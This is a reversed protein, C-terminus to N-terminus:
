CLICYSLCIIVGQIHIETSQVIRPWPMITVDGGSLADPLVQVGEVGGHLCYEPHALRSKAIHDKHVAWVEPLDLSKQWEKWCLKPGLGSIM